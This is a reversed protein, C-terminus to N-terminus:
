REANLVVLASALRNLACCALTQFILSSVRPNLLFNSLYSLSKVRESSKAILPIIRSYAPPVLTNAQPRGLLSGKANLAEM